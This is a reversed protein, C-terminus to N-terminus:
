HVTKGDSAAKKPEPRVEAPKKAGRDVTKPAAKAAPAAPAQPPKEQKAPAQPKSPAEVVPAAEARPARIVRVGKIESGYSAQLFASQRVKEADVATATGRPADRGVTGAGSGPAGPHSAADRDGVARRLREVVEGDLPTMHNRVPVKM